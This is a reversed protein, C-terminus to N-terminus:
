LFKWNMVHYLDAKRSHGNDCAENFSYKELIEPRAYLSNENGLSTSEIQKSQLTRGYQYQAETGSNGQFHISPVFTVLPLEMKCKVKPREKVKHHKVYVKCSNYTHKEKRVVTKSGTDVKGLQKAVRPLVVHIFTTGSQRPKAEHRAVRESNSRVSVVQNISPKAKTNTDKKRCLCQFQTLTNSDSRSNLYPGRAQRYSTIRLANRSVDRTFDPTMKPNKSEGIGQFYREDSSSYKRQREM